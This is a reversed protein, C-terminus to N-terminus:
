PFAFLLSIATALLTASLLWHRKATMNELLNLTKEGLGAMYHIGQNRREVNLM